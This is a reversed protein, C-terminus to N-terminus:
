IAPYKEKETQHYIGNLYMKTSETWKYSGGETSWLFISQPTM